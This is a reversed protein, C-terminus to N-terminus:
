EKRANQEDMKKHAEIMGNKVAAKVIFYFVAFTGVLFVLQFLIATATIGMASDGKFIYINSREKKASIM